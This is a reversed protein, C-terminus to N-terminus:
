RLSREALRVSLSVGPVIALALGLRIYNPVSM